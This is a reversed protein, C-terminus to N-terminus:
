GVMTTLVIGYDRGAAEEPVGSIVYDEITAASCRQQARHGTPRAATADPAMIVASAMYRWSADEPVIFRAAYFARVLPKAAPILGALNPNAPFRRKYEDARSRRDIVVDVDHDGASM